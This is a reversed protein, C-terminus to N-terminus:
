ILNEKRLNELRYQVAQSSVGCEAAILLPRCDLDKIVEVPMMLEATLNNAQWESDEIWKHEGLVAGRHMSVAHDLAIHSFEHIATNRSFPDDRFLGEYVSERLVILKREPVTFAAADELEDDPVPHILYDAKALVNELLHVTDIFYPGNKYCGHERLLARFQDALRRLEVRQRKAVKYGSPKKPPGFNNSTVVM